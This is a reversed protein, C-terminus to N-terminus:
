AVVEGSDLPIVAHVRWGGDHPGAEFVGGLSTVRESMSTLGYGGDSRPGVGCPSDVTITLDGDRTVVLEAQGGPCHREVNTLSEQVVRYAAHAVQPPLDGLLAPEYRADIELGRGRAADVADELNSPPMAPGGDPRLVALMSRLEGMAQKSTTRVVQLAQPAVAPNALGAEAHITIAALNGSLADHIEGAMAEREGRRAQEERLAAMRALDEARAREAEVLDAQQKASEGWWYSTGLVAFVTLAAMIAVRLDRTAVLTLVGVAAIVAVIVHALRDAIRGRGYRGAAHVLEIFVLLSALSGGFFGEAVFVLVGVGLATLPRARRVAMLACLVALPALHWWRELTWPTDTWTEVLGIPVLAVGLAFMGFAGRLDRSTVPASAPEAPAVDTM